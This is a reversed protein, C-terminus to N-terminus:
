QRRHLARATHQARSIRRHWRGMLTRIDNPGAGIAKLRKRLANTLIGRLLPGFLALGGAVRTSKCPVFLVIVYGCGLLRM